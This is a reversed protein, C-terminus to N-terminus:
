PSSHDAEIGSGGPSTETEGADGAALFILAEVTLAHGLPPDYLHCHTDILRM